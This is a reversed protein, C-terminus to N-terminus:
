RSVESEVVLTGAERRRTFFTLFTGHPLLVEDEYAFARRGLPPIWLGRTGAAVRIRLVAGDGATSVAFEHEAVARSFSTSVYGRQAQTAPLPTDPPLLRDLALGRYVVLDVPLVARALLADIGGIVLRARAAAAPPVPVGRLLTNVHERVDDDARQYTRIARIEAPTARLTATAADLAARTARDERRTTV